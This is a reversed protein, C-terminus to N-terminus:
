PWFTITDQSNTSLMLGTAAILKDLHGDTLTGLYQDNLIVSGDDFFRYNLMEVTNEYQRHIKITMAPSANKTFDQSLDSAPIDKVASYLIGKYFKRYKSIETIYHTKGNYKALVCLNANPDSSIVDFPHLLNGNDDTTIHELVLDKVGIVGMTTGDAISIEIKNIFAIHASFIHHDYWMKSSSQLFDFSSADVEFILSTNKNLLFFTNRETAKTVLFDYHLQHEFKSVGKADRTLNHTFKLSFATAFQALFASIVTDTDTTDASMVRIPKLDIFKKFCEDVYSEDINFQKFQENTHSYTDEYDWQRLEFPVYSFSVVPTFDSIDDDGKSECLSFDTIDFYNYESMGAFLNDTYEIENFTVNVSNSNNKQDTIFSQFQCSFLSTCLLSVVVILCIHTIIKKM